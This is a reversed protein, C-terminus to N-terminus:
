QVFNTEGWVTYESAVYLLLIYSRGSCKVLIVNLHDIFCYVLVKEETKKHAIESTMRRPKLMAQTQAHECDRERWLLASHCDEVPLTGAVWSRAKMYTHSRTPIATIWLVPLNKKVTRCHCYNWLYVFNKLINHWSQLLYIFWYVLVKELLTQSCAGASFKLNQLGLSRM